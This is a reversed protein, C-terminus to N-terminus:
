MLTGYFRRVGQICAVFQNQYSYVIARFWLISRVPLPRIILRLGTTNLSIRSWFLNKRIFFLVPMCNNCCLHFVDCNIWICNCGSVPSKERNAIDMTVEIIASCHSDLEVPYRQFWRACAVDRLRGAVSRQHLERKFSYLQETWTSRLIYNVFFMGFSKADDYSIM